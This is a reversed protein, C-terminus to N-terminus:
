PTSPVPHRGDFPGVLCGRVQMRKCDRLRAVVAKQHTSPDSWRAIDPAAINGAREPLASRTGRVARRSSRPCTPSVALACRGADPSPTGVSRGVPAPHPRHVQLGEARRNPHHIVPLLTPTGVTKLRGVRERDDRPANGGAGVSRDCGLRQASAEARMHGDSPWRGRRCIVPM